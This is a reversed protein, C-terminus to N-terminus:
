GPGQRWRRLRHHGGDAPPQEPGALPSQDSAVFHEGNGVGVVLPSGLRAAILVDPYDKFLVALGYTGRLQSVADGVAGALRAQEDRSPDQNQLCDVILHAIVESDTASQFEYGAEIAEIQDHM